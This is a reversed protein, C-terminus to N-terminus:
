RRIDLIWPIGPSIEGLAAVASHQQYYVPSGSPFAAMQHKSSILIVSASDENRNACLICLKQMGAPSVEHTMDVRFIVRRPLPITLWARELVESAFLDLRGVIRIITPSGPDIRIYETEYTPLGLSGISVQNSEGSPSPRMRLEAGCTTCTLTELHSVPILNACGHVPCSIHKSEAAFSNVAEDVSEYTDFVTMLKTIVLLDQITDTLNALRIMGRLKTYAAILAGVGGSKIYHVSALNLVVKKKDEEILRAITSSFAVSSEGLDLGGELELITVDGVRREKIDLEAM